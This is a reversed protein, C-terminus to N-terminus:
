ELYIRIGGDKDGAEFELDALALIFDDIREEPVAFLDEEIGKERLKESIKRRAEDPVMGRMGAGARLLGLPIRMRFGEEGDRAGVLGVIHLYRPLPKGSDQRVPMEIIEGTAGKLAALLREAEDVTINGSSLMELIRRAEDSM